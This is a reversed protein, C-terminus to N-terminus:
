LSSCDNCFVLPSKSKEIWKGNLKIRRFVRVVQSNKNIYFEIKIQADTAQVLEETDIQNTVYTNETYSNWGTSYITYPGKHEKNSIHLTIQELSRRETESSLVIWPGQVYDYKIDLIHYTWTMPDEHKSKARLYFDNTCLPKAKKKECSEQWEEFSVFETPVLQVKKGVFENSLDNYIFEEESWHWLSTKFKFIDQDNLHVELLLRDSLEGQATFRTYDQVKVIKSVSGAFLVSSFISMCLICIFKM